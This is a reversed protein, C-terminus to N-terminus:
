GSAIVWYAPSTTLTAGGTATPALFRKSRSAQISCGTSASPCTVIWTDKSATRKPQIMDTPDDALYSTWKGDGDCNAKIAYADASKTIMFLGPTKGPYVLDCMNAKNSADFKYGLSRSTGPSAITVRHDPSFSTLSGGGGSPGAVTTTGRAAVAVTKTTTTTTTKRRSLVAAILILVALAGCGIMSVMGIVISDSM